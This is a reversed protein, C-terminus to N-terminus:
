ASVATQNEYLGFLALIEEPRNQFALLAQQVKNTLDQFTPFYHLHVHTQKIRKWLMEIPNYDPSYSPLQFVTLRDKRRQFFARTYQSLHYKAGDQILIIHGRTMALVEKLFAVYSESNFRDEIGRCFFRGDLYSILGFVKYGKRRGSTKVVPQTGRRSWTYTLSGWQPFSVEDGFLIMAHKKRRLALIQPWTEDLWQRRKEEDLHDAVFRAKQFTFGMDRLLEAIYRASHFVGFRRQILDQIMPSRWAGGPYGCADPGADILEALERRQTKTLKPPRGSSKRPQVSRVGDLLFAGIWNYVAQPSRRLVVAIQAPPLGDNLALLAQLRRVAGLDRKRYADRLCARLARVTEPKMKIRAQELM